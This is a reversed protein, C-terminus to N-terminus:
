FELKRYLTLLGESSVNDDFKKFGKKEYFKGFMVERCELIVLKGGIIKQASQLVSYCENLLTEGSLASSPCSDCRGIQGILFAFYNNIKDRGPVNGLLKRKQKQSFSSIDVTTQGITFFALITLGGSFFDEEDILFYTKGFDTKNYLISKSTLFAELDHEKECSFKSMSSKIQTETFIGEDMLDKLAVTLYTM